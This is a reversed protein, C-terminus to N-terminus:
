WFVKEEFTSMDTLGRLLYFTTCLIGSPITQDYDDFDIPVKFQHELKHVLNWTDMMTDGFRVDSDKVSLFYEVFDLGFVMEIVTFTLSPNIIVRKKIDGKKGAQNVAFILCPKTLSDIDFSSDQLSLLLKRVFDKHEGKKGKFGWGSGTQKNIKSWIRDFDYCPKFRPLVKDPFSAYVLKSTAYCFKAQVLASSAKKAYLNKTKRLKNTWTAPARNMNVHTAIEAGLPPFCQKIWSVITKNCHAHSRVSAKRKTHEDMEPFRYGDRFFGDSLRV